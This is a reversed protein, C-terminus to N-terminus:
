ALAAFGRNGKSSIVVIFSMAARGDHFNVYLVGLRKNVDLGRRYKFDAHLEDREGSSAIAADNRPM